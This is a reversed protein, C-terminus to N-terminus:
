EEPDSDTPCGQFQEPDHDEDYEGGEAEVILKRIEELVTSRKKVLELISHWRAKFAYAQFSVTKTSSM